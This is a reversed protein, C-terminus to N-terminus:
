IPSAAALLEARQGALLRGSDVKVWRGSMNAPVSAGAVRLYAELARIVGGHTVALVTRGPHLEAIRHLSAAARTLVAARSEAGPPDLPPHDLLGPWRAEIEARTYGTFEGVDRERLGALVHPAEWGRAAAIIEATQRARALDSTVATGLEDLLGAAAATSAQAQGLVSLPPDARGQWRGDANWTSQGHRLLLIRTV